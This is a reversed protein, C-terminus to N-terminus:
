QVVYLWSIEHLGEGAETLELSAADAAVVGTAVLHARATDKEIEYVEVAEGAALGVGDNSALGFSGMGEQMKTGFPHLTWAAVITKDQLTEGPMWLAEDVRAAELETAPAFSTTQTNAPDFTLTLQGEAIDFWAGHLSLRDKGELISVCPFTRLNAISHRVSIHELATRREVDTMWQNGAVAAAPPALLEM